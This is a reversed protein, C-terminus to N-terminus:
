SDHTFIRISGSGDWSEDLNWMKMLAERHLLKAGTLVANQKLLLQKRKADEGKM